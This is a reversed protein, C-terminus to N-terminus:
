HNGSVGKISYAKQQKVLAENKEELNFKKEEETLTKLYDMEDHEEQKRLHRLYLLVIIAAFVPICFLLAVILLRAM